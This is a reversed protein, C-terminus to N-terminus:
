TRRFYMGRSTAERFAASDPVRYQALAAISEV